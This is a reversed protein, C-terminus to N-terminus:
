CDADAQLLANHVVAIVGVNVPLVEQQVETQQLANHVVVVICCYYCCCYLAFVLLLMLIDVFLVQRNLMRKYFPMTFGSYIFKGHYLAMAIFRGSCLFLNQFINGTFMHYSELEVLFSQKTNIM